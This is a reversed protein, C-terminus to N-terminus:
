APLLPSETRPFSRRIAADNEDLWRLYRGVGDSPAVTPTWQLLQQARSLDCVFYKQDGPREAAFRIPVARGLRRELEALLERLSLTNGPGGGINLAEGNVVDIREAVRLYLDVLDDIWLVDRVQKGDGYITLPLGFRAAIAFFAVWGQDEVGFQQTGFICSQRLVATKLGYIRSYDRVYQDAAGKSCGYPSHFDLPRRESVGGRDHRPSWRTAEEVLEIDELGGYVKNTSSYIVAPRRSSHRAAELVNFTGLANIEFDERPDVLSTTVAVQAAFHFVADAAAAAERLEPGYERIDAKIFTLNSAYQSQLWELNGASGVRRLSDLVIVHTGQAALRAALNCGIFGAGGTILVTAPTM